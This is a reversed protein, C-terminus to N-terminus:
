KNINSVNILSTIKKGALRSGPAPDMFVLIRDPDGLHALFLVNHLREIYGVSM